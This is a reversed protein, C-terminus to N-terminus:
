VSSDKPFARCGSACCGAGAVSARDRNPLEGVEDSEIGCVDVKDAPPTVLEEICEDEGPGRPRHGIHPASAPVKDFSANVLPTM